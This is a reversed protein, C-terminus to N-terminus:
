WDNIGVASSIYIIYISIFSPLSVSCKGNLISCENCRGHCEADFIPFTKQGIERKHLFFLMKELFDQVSSFNDENFEAPQQLCLCQTRLTSECNERGYVKNGVKWNEFWSSHSQIAAIGADTACKGGLFARKLRFFDRSWGTPTRHYFALLSRQRTSRLPFSWRKHLVRVNLSLFVVWPMLSRAARPAFLNSKKKARVLLDIEASSLMITSHTPPFFSSQSAPFFLRAKCVDLNLTRPRKKLTQNSFQM